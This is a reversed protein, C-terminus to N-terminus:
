APFGARGGTDKRELLTAPSREANTSIRDLGALGRYAIAMVALAALLWARRKKDKERIV